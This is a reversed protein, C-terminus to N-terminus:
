LPRIIPMKSIGIVVVQLQNSNQLLILNGEIIAPRSGHIVSATDITAFDITEAQDAAVIKSRSHDRRRYTSAADRWSVRNASASGGGHGSNLQV